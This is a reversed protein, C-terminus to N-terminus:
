RAAPDSSGDRRLSTLEPDNREFDFLPAFRRAMANVLRNRFRFYVWRTEMHGGFLLKAAYTTAGMEIESIGRATAYEIIKLWNLFYLNLERADPYRMGMKNSIIRRDGAHFLHFGVLDDGRWFLMLQAKDAQRALFSAFYEPGIRDFDGYSVGSQALTAEYLAILQTELGAASRRFEIRVQALTKMKSKFYSRYRRKLTGLYHELSPSALPLMVVPVSRIRTFGRSTLVDHYEAADDGLGKIAIVPAKAQRAEAELTDILENFVISRGTPDLDSALGINCSDSLPSGLGLVRFSLVGPCLAYLRDFWYRARGQFPTDLRYTLRFCPAVAIVRGADTTATLAGLDFGEPPADEVARYFDWDEPSGPILANWASRPVSDISAHVDVHLPEDAPTRSSVANPLSGFEVTSKPM